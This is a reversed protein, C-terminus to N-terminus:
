PSHQLQPVKSYKLYLLTDTMVPGATVNMVGASTPLTDLHKFAYLSSIFHLFNM